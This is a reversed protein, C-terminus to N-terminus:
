EIAEGEMKCQGGYNNGTITLDRVYFEGKVSPIALGSGSNDILVKYNPMIGANILCSFKVKKRKDSEESAQKYEIEMESVDVNKNVLKGNKGQVLMKQKASGEYKGGYFYFPLNNEVDKIFDDDKKRVPSASILGSEYDLIVNNFIQYQDSGKRASHDVLCLMSNDVYMECEYFAIRENIKVFAEKVSGAFNFDDELIVEKLSTAGNLPLSAYDAITKVVNYWNDGEKFSVAIPVLALSYFNGRTSQCILKTRTEGKKRDAEVYSTKVSGVFINGIGNSQEKYGFEHIIGAGEYLIKNITDVNANYITYKAYNKYWRISRHIEFDFHLDSVLTGNGSDNGNKFSGVYLNNVQEFAPM